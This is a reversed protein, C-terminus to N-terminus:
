TEEHLPGHILHIYILLSVMTKDLSRTLGKHEEYLDGVATIGKVPVSVTLEETINLEVDIRRMLVALLTTAVMCASEDM